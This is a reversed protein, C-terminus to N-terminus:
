EETRRRKLKIRKLKFGQKKLSKKAKRYERWEKYKM